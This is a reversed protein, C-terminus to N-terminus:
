VHCTFDTQSSFYPLPSQINYRFQAAVVEIDIDVDFRNSLHLKYCRNHLLVSKCRKNVTWRLTLLILSNSLSYYLSQRQKEKM